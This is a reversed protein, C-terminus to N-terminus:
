SAGDHRCARTADPANQDAQTAHQALQARVRSRYERPSCGASRKFARNFASKDSYGLLEAIMAVRAGPRCLHHEALELRTRALLDRFTLGERCLKRALTRACTNMRAAVRTVTPEGCRLEALIAARVQQPLFAPRAALRKEALDALSARAFADGGPLAALLLETPFTCSTQVAGFRLPARLIRRHHAFDRPADHAFSVELPVFDNAVLARVALVGSTVIFSEEERHLATPTSLELAVSTRDGDAYMTLRATCRGVQSLRMGHLLAEGLTTSTSALQGLLGFDRVGIREALRAGIGTQGSAGGIAEWFDYTLLWGSTQLSGASCRALIARADLGLGALADLIRSVLGRDLPSTAALAIGSAV